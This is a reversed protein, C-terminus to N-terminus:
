TGEGLCAFFFQMKHLNFCSITSYGLIELTVTMTEKRFVPTCFFM